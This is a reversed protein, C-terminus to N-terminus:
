DRSGFFFFIRDRAGKEAVSKIDMRWKRTGLLCFKLLLSSKFCMTRKTREKKLINHNSKLVEWFSYLVTNNSPTKHFKTSPPHWSFNGINVVTWRHINLSQYWGLNIIAPIMNLVHYKWIRFRNRRHKKCQLYQFPLPFSAWFPQQIPEGALTPSGLKIFSFTQKYM